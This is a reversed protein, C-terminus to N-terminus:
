LVFIYEHAISLFTEYIMENRLTSEHTEVNVEMITHDEQKAVMADNGNQLGVQCTGEIYKWTTCPTALFRDVGQNLISRHQPFRGFFLPTKPKQVLTSLHLM